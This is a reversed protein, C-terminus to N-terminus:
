MASPSMQSYHFLSSKILGWTKTTELMADHENGLQKMPNVVKLFSNESICNLEIFKYNLKNSCIHNKRFKFVNEM